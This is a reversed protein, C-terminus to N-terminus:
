GKEDDARVAACTEEDAYDDLADTERLGVGDGLRVGAFAQRIMGAIRQAEVLRDSRKQAAAITSTCYGRAKMEAIDSPIPYKQYV